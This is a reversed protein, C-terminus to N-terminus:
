ISMHKISQEAQDPVVITRNNRQLLAKIDESNKEFILATSKSGGILVGKSFAVVHEIDWADMETHM